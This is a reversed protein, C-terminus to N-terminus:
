YYSLTVPVAWQYAGGKLGHDNLTGTVPITCVRCNKNKKHSFKISASGNEVSLVRGNNVTMSVHSTTSCTVHLDSTAVYKHEGGGPRGAIKFAMPDIDGSCTATDRETKVIMGPRLHFLYPGIRDRGTLYISSSVLILKDDPDPEPSGNDSGDHFVDCHVGRYRPYNVELSEHFKSKNTLEAATPVDKGAQATGRCHIGRSYMPPGGGWTATISFWNMYATIPYYEDVAPGFTGSEFDGPEFEVQKGGLWGHDTYRLANATSPALTVFSLLVATLVSAGARLPLHKWPRVGFLWPEASRVPEPPRTPGCTPHRTDLGVRSETLAAPTGPVNRPGPPCQGSSGALNASRRHYRVLPVSAPSDVGITGRRGWRGYWKSGPEHDSTIMNTM